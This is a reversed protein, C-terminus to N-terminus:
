RVDYLDFGVHRLNLSRSRAAILGLVCFQLFQASLARCLLAGKTVDDFFQLGADAPNWGFDLSPASSYAKWL